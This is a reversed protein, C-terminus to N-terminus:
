FANFISSFTHQHAWVGTGLITQGRGKSNGGGWRRRSHDAGLIIGNKMTRRKISVAIVVRDSVKASQMKTM